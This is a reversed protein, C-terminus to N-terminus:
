FQLITPTRTRTNVINCCHYIQSQLKGYKMSCLGVLILEYSQGKQTGKQCDEDDATKLNSGLKPRVLQLKQFIFNFTQFAM